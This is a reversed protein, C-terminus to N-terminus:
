GQDLVQVVLGIKRSIDEGFHIAGAHSVAQLHSYRDEIVLEDLPRASNRGLELEVAALALVEELLRDLSPQGVVDQVTRFHAKRHREGGPEAALESLAHALPQEAVLEM